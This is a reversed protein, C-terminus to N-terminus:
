LRQLAACGLHGNSCTVQGPLALNLVNFTAVKFRSM